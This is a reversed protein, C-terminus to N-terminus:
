PQRAEVKESAVAKDEETAPSWGAEAAHMQELRLRRDEHAPCATMRTAGARRGGLAKALTEAIM